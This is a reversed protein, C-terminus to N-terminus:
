STGFWGSLVSPACEVGRPEPLGLDVSHEANQEAGKCLEQKGNAWRLGFWGKGKGLQATRSRGLKWIAGM